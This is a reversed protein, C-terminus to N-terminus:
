AEQNPIATMFTVDVESSDALYADDEGVCADHGCLCGDIVGCDRVTYMCM